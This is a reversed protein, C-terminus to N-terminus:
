LYRSLAYRNVPAASPAGGGGFVDAEALRKNFYAPDKSGWENWYNVWGPTEHTDVGRSKFYADLQSALDGGGANITPLPGSPASSGSAGGGDYHPDVGPRYAPIERDGFGLLKAVSGIRRQAAAWQDYNGARAVENNQFGNEASSKSFALADAAAKANAAAIREQAEANIRAADTAASAQQHAGFLNGFLNVGGSVISSYPVASATVPPVVSSVTSPGVFTGAADFAGGGVDAATTSAAATSSAATSSAAASASAGPPATAALAPTSSLIADAAGATIIGAAVMSLIKGWDLPTDYAGTQPNWQTRGHILGGGLDGTPGGMPPLYWKQGSVLRYPKGTADTQVPGPTAARQAPTAGGMQGSMDQGPAFDGNPLIWYGYENQTAGPPPIFTPM